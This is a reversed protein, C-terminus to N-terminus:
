YRGCRGPPRFGSCPDMGRRVSRIRAPSRVHGGLGAAVVDLATHAVVHRSLDLYPLEAPRRRPSSTFRANCRNRNCSRGTADGSGGSHDSRPSAMLGFAARAKAQTHEVRQKEWAEVGKEIYEQGRTVMLYILCALERATANVAVAADKRALRSRHRAGVFSQSRRAGVAAM